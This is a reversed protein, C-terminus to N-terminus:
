NTVRANTVLYETGSTFDHDVFSNFSGNITSSVYTVM